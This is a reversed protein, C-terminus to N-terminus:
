PGEEGDGEPRLVGVTRREDTFTRAAVERLEDATISGYIELDRVLREWGGAFLENFALSSALGANSALGRVTAARM